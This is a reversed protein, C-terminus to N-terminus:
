PRQQLSLRSFFVTDHREEWRRDLVAMSEAQEVHGALTTVLPAVFDAVCGCHSPSRQFWQLIGETLASMGPIDKALNTHKALEEKRKQRRTELFSKRTAKLVDSLSGSARTAEAHAPQPCDFRPQLGLAARSANKMERAERVHKSSHKFVKRIHQRRAMTAAYGLSRFRCRSTPSLHQYKHRLQQLKAKHVATGPRGMNCGREHLFASWAGGGGRRRKQPPQSPSELPTNSHSSSPGQADRLASSMFYASVDAHSCRHTHVSKGEIERRNAAHRCETTAIDTSVQMAVARLEEIAMHSALTTPTDYHQLWWHAFPDRMCYPLSLIHAAREELAEADVLLLLSFLVYPFGSHPLELKQHVAAGERSVLRFITAAAGGTMHTAPLISSWMADDFLMQSLETVWPRSVSASWAEVVRYSRMQNDRERTNQDADWQRGSIKLQTQM